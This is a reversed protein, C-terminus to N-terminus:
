TSRPGPRAPAVASSPRQRMTGLLATAMLGVGTAAVIGSPGSIWLLKPLSLLPALVEMERAVLGVGILVLGADCWAPHRLPTRSFRPILHSGLSLILTTVCGLALAHRAGDWVATPLVHGALDFLGYALALVAFLVASAFAMRVARRVPLPALHSSLPRPAPRELVRAGLVFAGVALATIVLGVDYLRHASADPPAAAGITAAAAGAQTAVFALKLLPGRPAQLALATPEMRQVMGEIWSLAGGVLAALYFAENYRAGLDADGGRVARVGGAVLMTAAVIWWLTGAALAPAGVKPRPLPVSRWTAALVTAFAVVGGLVAVGGLLLAPATGRLVPGFQGYARLLLGGFTLRFSARALDARRLPVGSSRPIAQYAVGMVFLLVFGILQFSAHVWSHAPPVPGLALHIILLNLAGFSAGLTLTCWLATRLFRRSLPWSALFPSGDAAHHREGSPSEAALPLHRRLPSLAVESM